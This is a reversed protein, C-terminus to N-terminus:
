PARDRKAERPQTATGEGFEQAYFELGKKVAQVIARPSITAGTIQDIDGGDKKVKLNDALSKGVLGGPGSGRGSWTEEKAIKAGLGPTEAHSVIEVGTIKGDPRVGMMIEIDGSYGDRAVVKFARGVITDGTKGNYIRRVIERGKKDVGIKKELFDQDAQNDYDPLVARIARREEEAKAEAIPGKTVDYVVALIAAAGVCFVTLVLIMRLINGM